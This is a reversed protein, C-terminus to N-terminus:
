AKRGRKAAAKRARPAPAAAAGGPTASGAGAPPQPAAGTGALDAPLEPMAPDMEAGAALRTMASMWGRVRRLHREETALAASFSEVLDTQELAAALRILMEWSDRDSLEAILAANLSERMGLRPDTAIQLVGSSAMAQINASPTMATPDGGLLEIADRVMRFHSLEDARIEELDAASPGGEQPGITRAKTVLAEYMRTGTREFALRAGMADLLVAVNEGQFAKLASKVMEKLGAPPPMSGAPEAERIFSARIPELPLDTPVGAPSFEQANEIMERALAPSTAIGTRNQRLETPEKM